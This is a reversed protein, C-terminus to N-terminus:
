NGKLDNELDHDISQIEHWLAEHVKVDMPLNRDEALLRLYDRITEIYRRLKEEKSMKDGKLFCNTVQEACHKAESPPFKCQNTYWHQLASLLLSKYEKKKM